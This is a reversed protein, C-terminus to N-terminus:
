FVFLTEKLQSPLKLNDFLLSLFKRLLFVGVVYGLIALKKVSIFGCIKYVCHWVSNGFISNECVKSAIYIHLGVFYM